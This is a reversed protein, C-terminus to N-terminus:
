HKKVVQLSEENLCKNKLLYIQHIPDPNSSKVIADYEARFRAFDRIKGSFKPPPMKEMNSHSSHAVVPPLIQVPTPPPTPTTNSSIFIQGKSRVDYIEDRMTTEEDAYKEKEDVVTELSQAKHWAEMLERERLEIDGILTQVYSVDGETPEAKVVAEKLDHLASNVVKVNSAIELKVTNLELVRRATEDRTARVGESAEELEELKLEAEDLIDVANDVKPNIYDSMEETTLQVEAKDGYAHHANILEEQDVGVREMKQRLIRTVVSTGDLYRRLQRISGELKAACSERHSSAARVAAM